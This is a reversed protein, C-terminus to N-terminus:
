DDSRRFVGAAASLGKNKPRPLFEDVEGAGLERWVDVFGEEAGVVLFWDEWFGLGVGGKRFV